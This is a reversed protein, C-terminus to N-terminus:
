EKSRILEGTSANARAVKITGIERRGRGTYYSGILMNSSLELIATGRHAEMSDMALSKPENWYVYVLEPTDLDLNRITVAESYSNSYDSDLRITIRSWTQTISLSVTQTSGGNGYSSDISGVWKGNLDPIKVLGLLHLSKFRWVHRDFLWYFVTYFAGFSPTTIWWAPNIGTAELAFAVMWVLPVSLLTIAIYGWQRGQSDYSHM